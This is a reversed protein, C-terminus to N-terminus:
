PKRWVSDDCWHITPTALHEFPVCEYPLAKGPRGTEKWTDMQTYRYQDTGPCAETGDVCDHKGVVHQGSLIDRYHNNPFSVSRYNHYV